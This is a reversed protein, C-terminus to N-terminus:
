QLEGYPLEIVTYRFWSHEDKFNVLWHITVILQLMGLSLSCYMYGYWYLLVAVGCPRVTIRHCVNLHINWAILILIFPVILFRKIHRSENFAKLYKEGMELNISVWSYSESIHIYIYIYIYLSAFLKNQFIRIFILYLLCKPYKWLSYTKPKLLVFYRLVPPNNMILLKM